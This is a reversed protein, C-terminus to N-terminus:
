YLAGCVELSGDARGQIQAPPAPASPHDGLFLSGLAVSGQDPGGRVGRPDEQGLCSARSKQM